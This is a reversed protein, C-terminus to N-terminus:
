HAGTQDDVFPYYIQIVFNGGAGDAELASRAIVGYIMDGATVGSGVYGDASSRGITVENDDIGEVGLGTTKGYICYWGYKDVVIAAQAIAVPGSADGALLTTDFEEDYTVFSGALTSACGKLYVYENGDTDFARTGLNIATRSYITDIDGPCVVGTLEAM